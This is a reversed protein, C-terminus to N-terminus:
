WIMWVVVAEILYAWPKSRACHACAGFDCKLWQLGKNATARLCVVEQSIRSHIVGDSAGLANCVESHLSSSSGILALQQIKAWCWGPLNVQHANLMFSITQFLFLHSALLKTIIAWPVSCFAFANLIQQAHNGLSLPCPHFALSSCCLDLM